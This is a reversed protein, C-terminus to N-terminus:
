LADAKLAIKKFGNPIKYPFNLDKNFEVSRYDIDITNKGNGDIATIFIENPLIRNNTKQYNKYTIDLVRKKSPQSLQQAAMMFNDPEVMFSTKFLDMPKKPKLIYDTESLSVEYKDKRLDFLAQGLLLNQVKDFDLETGLLNSLYSFDGDFYENDLKNYFSVRNPTIYAKVVGFPASIWITKDKEMRLSVTVSKTSEGDFFGIKIRGSLTKFKIQNQYHTRIIAKASMNEMVAGDTVLKKSKCSFLILIFVSIRTWRMLTAM